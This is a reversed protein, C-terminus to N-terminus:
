AMTHGFLRLYVTIDPPLNGNITKSNFPQARYWRPPLEMGPMNSACEDHGPILAARMQLFDAWDTL